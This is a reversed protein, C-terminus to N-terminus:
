RCSYIMLVGQVRELCDLCHLIMKIFHHFTVVLLHSVCMVVESNM